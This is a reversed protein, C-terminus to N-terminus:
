EATRARTLAEQADIYADILDLVKERNEPNKFQTMCHVVGAHYAEPDPEVISEPSVGCVKSITDLDFGTIYLRGAFLKELEQASYGLAERLQQKKEETNALQKVAFGVERAYSM